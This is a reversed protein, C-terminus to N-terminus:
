AQVQLALLSLIDHLLAPTMDVLNHVHYTALKPLCGLPLHDESKTGQGQLCAMGIM